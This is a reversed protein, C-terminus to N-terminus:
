PSSVRYFLGSNTTSPDVFSWVGNTDTLNTAVNQWVAPPTLNTTTQLVYDFGPTGPMQITLSGDANLHPSLSQPVMGVILMAISSTVSNFQNSVIV